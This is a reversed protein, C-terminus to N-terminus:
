ILIIGIFLGIVLGMRNYIKTKKNMEKEQSEIYNELDKIQKEIVNDSVSHRLLSLVKGFNIIMKFDNEKLHEKDENSEIKQLSVNWCESVDLSPNEDILFSTNKYGECLFCESSSGTKKLATLIDRGEVMVMNKFFIIDKLYNNLIESRIELSKSFLKGIYGCAIVVFLLSIIKIM